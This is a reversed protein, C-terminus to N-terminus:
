MSSSVTYNGVCFLSFLYSLSCGFSVIYVFAWGFLSVEKSFWFMERWRTKPQKSFTAQSTWTDRPSYCGQYFQTGHRLIVKPNGQTNM